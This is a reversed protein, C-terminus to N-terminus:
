NSESPKRRNLAMTSLIKEAAVAEIQDKYNKIDAAKMEEILDWVSQNEDHLRLLEEKTKGILDKHASNDLNDVLQNLAGIIDEFKM